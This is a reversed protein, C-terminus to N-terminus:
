QRCQKASIDGGCVSFVGSGFLVGIGFLDGHRLLVVRRGLRDGLAIGRGFYDDHLFVSEASLLRFGFHGKGIFGTLIGRAFFFRTLFLRTAFFSALFLRATRITAGVHGGRHFRTATFHVRPHFLEDAGLLGLLQM